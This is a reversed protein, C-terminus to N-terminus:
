FLQSYSEGIHSLEFEFTSIFMNSFFSSFSLNIKKLNIIHIYKTIKYTCIVTSQNKKKRRKVQRNYSHFYVLIHAHVKSAFSQKVIAREPLFHVFHFSNNYLLLKAKYINISAILFTFNIPYILYTFSKTSM